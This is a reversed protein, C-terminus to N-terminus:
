RRGSGVRSASRSELNQDSKARGLREFYPILAGLVVAASLTPLAGIRRDRVLSRTMGGVMRFPALLRDRLPVSATLPNARLIMMTLDDGSIPARCHTEIAAVLDPIVRTVDGVPVENAIQLLGAMGLYGGDATRAEPLSDTYCLVLDDPSLDIEFQQYDALDAIGLPVDELEVAVSSFREIYTWKRESARWLLPPPHGANCLRLTASPAFFTTVVATAFIGVRSQTVFAENMRRVFSVQDVHNIHQRMLDRLVSALESVDAGHGAVDALLLRTIRGTACSSVYYVDGGGEAQAFPRAHLWVDLGALRVSEDAAQNGGWVEMCGLTYPNDPM